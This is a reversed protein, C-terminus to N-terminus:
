WELSKLHKLDQPTGSFNILRFWAIKDEDSVTNSESPLDLYEHSYILNFTPTYSWFKYQADTDFDKYYATIGNVLLPFENNYFALLTTLRQKGDIVQFSSKFNRQKDTHIKHIIVSISPLQMDKLVSLVLESKQLNNWVLPRQLNKKISPLFVEFDFNYYERDEYLERINGHSIGKQIKLNLKTYFDSLSYKKM